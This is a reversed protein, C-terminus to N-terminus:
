CDPKWIRIEKKEISNIAEEMRRCVNEVATEPCKFLVHFPIAKRNFRGNNTIPKSWWRGVDDLLDILIRFQEKDEKVLVEQANNIVVLYIDGILWEDLYCLCEELADWNEGFDEFFQLAASFEDM